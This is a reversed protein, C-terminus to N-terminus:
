YSLHVELEVCQTCCAPETTSMQVDGLTVVGAHLKHFADWEGLSDMELVYGLWHVNCELFPAEDLTIQAQDDDLTVALMYCFKVMEHKNGKAQHFVQLLHRNPVVSLIFVGEECALNCFSDFPEGCDALLSFQLEWLHCSWSENQVLQVLQKFPFPNSCEYQWTM